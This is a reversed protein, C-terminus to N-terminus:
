SNETLILDIQEPSSKDSTEVDYDSNTPSSVFDKFKPLVKISSASDSQITFFLINSFSISPQGRFTLHNRLRFRMFTNTKSILKCSTKAHWTL